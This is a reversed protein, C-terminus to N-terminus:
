DKAGGLLKGLLGGSQFGEAKDARRRRLSAEGEEGEAAAAAEGEGEVDESVAGKKGEEELTRQTEDEERWHKLLKCNAEVVEAETLFDVTYPEFGGRFKRVLEQTRAVDDPKEGGVGVCHWGVQVGLDKAQGEDGIVFIVGDETFGCGIQGPQFTVTTRALSEDSILAIARAAQTEGQEQIGESSKAKMKKRAEPARTVFHFFQKAKPWLEYCVPMLVITVGIWWAFPDGGAKKVMNMGVMIMGFKM